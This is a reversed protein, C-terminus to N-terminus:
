RRMTVSWTASFPPGGAPTVTVRVTVAFRKHSTIARAAPSSLKVAFLFRGAAATKTVIGIRKLPKGRGGVAAPKALVEVTLTSGARAVLISGRITKGKQTSSLTLASAAPAPALISGHTPAPLVTGTAGGQGTPPTPTPTPSTPTPTPTPSPSPSPTPTSGGAGNVTVVGVMTPHLQCAFAYTGSMDFTCTGSWGHPSPFPPMPPAGPASSTPATQTCVPQVDGDFNVNHFSAGDPYSFTVTGGPDITVTNSGDVSSHWNLDDAATFEAEAQPGAGYAHTTAGVAAVAVAACVALKMRPGM